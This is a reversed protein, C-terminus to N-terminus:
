LSGSFDEKALEFGQVTSTKGLQNLCNELDAKLGYASQYRNEANKAMLKIVRDSVQDKNGIWM